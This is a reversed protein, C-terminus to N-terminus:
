KKNGFKEIIFGLLSGLILTMISIPVLAIPQEWGILFACPVLILFSVLIGKLVSNIKLEITSIFFGSIVWMSFASLNADFTLKQLFMPILDIIGAMIGFIIGLLIKKKNMEM